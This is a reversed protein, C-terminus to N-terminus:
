FLEAEGEDLGRQAVPRAPTDGVGGGIVAQVADLRAAVHGLLQNLLDQFQLATVLRGLEGDVRTVVSGDGGYEHLLVSVREFGGTLKDVADELLERAQGIERRMGNIEEQIM